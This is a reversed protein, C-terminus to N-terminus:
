PVLVSVRGVNIASGIADDRGFTWIPAEGANCPTSIDVSTTTGIMERATASGSESTLTVSAVETGPVTAEAEGAAMCAVSVDIVYNNVATVFESAEVIITLATIAMGPPIVGGRVSFLETDDLAPRGHTLWSSGAAFAVGSGLMLGATAAADAAMGGGPSSARGFVVDLLPYPNSSGGGLVVPTGSNANCFEFASDTSDYWFWGQEGTCDDDSVAGNAADAKGKWILDGEISLSGNIYAGFLVGACLIAIIIANRM